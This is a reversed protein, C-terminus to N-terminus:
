GSWCAGRVQEARCGARGSGCPWPGSPQLCRGGASASKEGSVSSGPKRTAVFGIARCAGPSAKLSRGSRRQDPRTREELRACRVRRGLVRPPAEPVAAIDGWCGRPGHQQKEQDDARLLLRPAPQALWHRAQHNTSAAAQMQAPRNETAVDDGGEIRVGGRLRIRDDPAGRDAPIRQDGNRDDAAVVWQHGFAIMGNAATWSAAPM